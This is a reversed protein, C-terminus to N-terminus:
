THYARANMGSGDGHCDDRNWLVETDLGMM